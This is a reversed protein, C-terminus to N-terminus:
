FQGAKRRVQGPSVEFVQARADSALYERELALFDAEDGETSVAWIFENTEPLGYAPTETETTAM